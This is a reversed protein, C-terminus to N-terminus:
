RRTEMVSRKFSDLTNKEDLLLGDVVKYSVPKTLLMLFRLNAIVRTPRSSRGSPRCDSLASDGISVSAANIVAQTSAAACASTLFIAYMCNDYLSRPTYNIVTVVTSLTSQMSVDLLHSVCRFALQDCAQDPINYSYAVGMRDVIMVGVVDDGDGGSDASTKVGKFLIQVVVHTTEDINGYISGRRVIDNVFKDSWGTPQVNKSSADIKIIVVAVPNPPTTRHSISAAIVCETASRVTNWNSRKLANTADSDEQIAHVGLWGVEKQVNNLGNDDRSLLGAVQSWVSKRFLARSHKSIYWLDLGSLLGVM